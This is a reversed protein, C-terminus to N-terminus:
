LSKRVQTEVTAMGAMERLAKRDTIVIRHRDLKIKGEEELSKLSRGVIERATGALAAIEQQTLRPNSVSAEAYELLIKAVRNTVHRFSLDEVLAILHQVQHCLVKVLNLAVKNNQQVILELNSKEIGYILSATMAEVSALALGGDFAPVDNFSEPPRVLSLIQEKGDPSLKFVKIMGSVVFYVAKAAEGEVLFMEGRDATKEFVM